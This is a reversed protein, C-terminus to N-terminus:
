TGAVIREAQPYLRALVDACAAEVVRQLRTRMAVERGPEDAPPQQWAAQLAASHQAAAGEVAEIWAAPPEQAV